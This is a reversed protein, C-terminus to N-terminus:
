VTSTLLSALGDRFTVQAIEHGKKTADYYNIVVDNDKTTTMM